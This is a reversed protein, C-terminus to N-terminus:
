RNDNDLYQVINRSLTKPTQQPGSRESPRIWAMCVHHRIDTKPQTKKKKRKFVLKKESRKQETAVPCLFDM